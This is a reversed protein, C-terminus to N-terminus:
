PRGWRERFEKAANGIIASTHAFCATEFSQDGLFRLSEVGQELDEYIPSLRLHGRHRNAADGVFLVGGDHPWLFVLHGETHGPTGLAKLGGAVPIEEGASVEGDTEFPDVSTPGRQIVMHAFLRNRLGPAVKWPRFAQGVRTLAADAPHMWVRAGTAERVEAVGGAHDPHCHTVVIDTIEEPLRGLSRTAEAIPGMSGPMGTDVLTLSEPLVILFVNAPGVNVLHVHETVRETAM